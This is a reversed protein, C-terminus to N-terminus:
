RMRDTIRSAGGGSRAASRLLGVLLRTEFLWGNNAVDLVGAEEALEALLVLVLLRNKMTEVLDGMACCAAAAAPNPADLPTLGRRAPLAVSATRDVAATGNAGTKGYGVGDLDVIAYGAPVGDVDLACRLGLGV